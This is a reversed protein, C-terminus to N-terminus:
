RKAYIEVGDKIINSKLSLKSLDEFHVIDFDLVTNLERIDSEIANFGKKDLMSGFIAIDIDSNNKYEGRARSGFVLVKEVHEYKSVINM